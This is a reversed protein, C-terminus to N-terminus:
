NNRAWQPMHTSTSVARSENWAYPAFEWRGKGESGKEIETILHMLILIAHPFSSFKFSSWTLALTGSLWRSGGSLPFRAATKATIVSAQRSTLIQFSPWNECHFFTRAESHIWQGDTPIVQFKILPSQRMLTTLFLVRAASIADCKKANM